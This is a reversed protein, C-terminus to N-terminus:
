IEIGVEVVRRLRRNEEGTARQIRVPWSESGDGANSERVDFDVQISYTQGPPFSNGATQTIVRQVSESGANPEGIIQSPVLPGNKSGAGSDEILAETTIFLVVHAPVNRERVAWRWCVHVQRIRCRAIGAPLRCGRRIERGAHGSQRTIVL